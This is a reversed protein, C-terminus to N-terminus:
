RGYLEFLDRLGELGVKCIVIYFLVLLMLYGVIGLM